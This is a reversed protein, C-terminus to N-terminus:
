DFNKWMWSATEQMLDEADSRNPVFMLIFTFIRRQNSLFLSIFDDKNSKECDNGDSQPYTENM